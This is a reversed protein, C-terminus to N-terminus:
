QNPNLMTGLLSSWDFAMGPEDRSDGYSDSRYDWRDDYRDNSTRGARYDRLDREADRLDNRFWKLAKLNRGTPAIRAIEARDHRIRDVLRSYHPDNGRDRRDDRDRWGNRIYDRDGNRHRWQSQNDRNRDEDTHRSRDWLGSWPSPDAAALPALSLTLGSALIGSLVLARMKM